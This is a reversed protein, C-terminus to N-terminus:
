YLIYLQCIDALLLSNMHIITFFLKFFNFRLIKAVVRKLLQIHTREEMEVSLQYASLFGSILLLIDTYILPARFLISLPQDVANVLKDRNSIPLHGMMIYKLSIYLMFTAGIKLVHIIPFQVEHQEESLLDNFTRQPSFALFCDQLLIKFSKTEAIFDYFFNM